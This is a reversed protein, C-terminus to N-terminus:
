GISSRLILRWLHFDLFFNGVDQHFFRKMDGSNEGRAPLGFDSSLRSDIQQQSFTEGGAQDGNGVPIQQRRSLCGMIIDM